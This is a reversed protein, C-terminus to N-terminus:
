ANRKDQIRGIQNWAPCSAIAAGAGGQKVLEINRKM